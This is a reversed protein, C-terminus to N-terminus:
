RVICLKQVIREGTPRTLRISYMGQAISNVVFNNEYDSSNFILRGRMDFIELSSNSELGAITLLDDQKLITPIFITTSNECDSLVTVTVNASTITSCQTQTLTYITTTHPAAKPNGINSNSLGITPYWSYTVTPDSVSGLQVSDNLCITAGGGADCPLMEVVSVDDFYYYCLLYGYNMTDSTTALDTNFNGITVFREGGTATFNGSILTWTSTDTIVNGMTNGIQSTYPLPFDNNSRITDPSFFAGFGDITIRSSDAPSVYFEVCYTKGAILPMTLPAEIYERDTSGILLCGAYGLGTKPAQWGLTNAPTSYSIPGCENYLDPSDGNLSTQPSFWPPCYGAGLCGGCFSCTTITEFSSNPVLNQSQLVFQVLVFTFVLATKM